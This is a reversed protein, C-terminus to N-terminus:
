LARVQVKVNGSPRMHGDVASGPSYVLVEVDYLVGLRTAAGRSAPVCDLAGSSSSSASGRRSAVM